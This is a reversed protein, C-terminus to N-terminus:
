PTPQRIGGARCCDFVVVVKRAPIARLAKTFEHGFIATRSLSEESNIVRDVPLLYEGAHSGSVTRVGHGSIHFRNYLRPRQAQGPRCPGPSPGIPHNGM